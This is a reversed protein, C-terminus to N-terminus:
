EESWSMTVLGLRGRGSRRSPSLQPPLPSDGSLVPTITPIGDEISNNESEALALDPARDGSGSPSANQILDDPIM